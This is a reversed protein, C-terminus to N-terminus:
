YYEHDQIGHAALLGHGEQRPPLVMIYAHSDREGIYKEAEEVLRRGVGRGRYKPKVYLEEIWYAGERVSIWIFGIPHDNEGALLFTNESLLSKLEARYDDRSRVPLGQRRRLETYFGTYLDLIDELDNEYGIRIVINRGCPMISVLVHQVMHIYLFMKEGIM